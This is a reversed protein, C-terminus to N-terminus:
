TCLLNSIYGELTIMIYAIQKINHTSCPLVTDVWRAVASADDEVEEELVDSNSLAELESVDVASGVLVSALSVVDLVASSVSVIVEVDSPVDDVVNRDPVLESSLVAEKDDVSLGLVVDVTVLVLKTGCVVACDLASELLVNVVEVSCLLSLSVVVREVRVVFEVLEDVEVLMDVAVVSNLEVEEPVVDGGAL